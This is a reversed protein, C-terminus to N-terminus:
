LWRRLWGLPGPSDRLTYCGRRGEYLFSELSRLLDRGLLGHFQALEPPMALRVVQIPDFPAMGALPFALRVWFLQTTGAHLPAVMRVTDGGQPNLHRILGPILTTLKAGTDM